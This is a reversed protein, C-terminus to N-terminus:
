QKKSNFWETINTHYNEMFWSCVRKMRNEKLFKGIQKDKTIQSFVADLKLLLVDLDEKNDIKKDKLIPLYNSEISDGIEGFNKCNEIVLNIGSERENENSIYIIKDNISDLKSKINDIYLSKTEKFITDSKRYLNENNENDDKNCGALRTIDKVNLGMFKSYNQLALKEEKVEIFENIAGRGVGMELYAKQNDSVSVPTAIALLEKIQKTKSWSDIELTNKLTKEFFCMYENSQEKKEEGDILLSNIEIKSAGFGIPKAMGISHKFENEGHFTLASLLGGLEIPLLNNFVITGTFNAGKELPFFSTTLKTPIPVHDINRISEIIPYRKRGSIVGNNFTLYDDTSIMETTANLFHQQIYFPYYTPKPSGLVTTFMKTETANNSFCHGFHVRGKLKNNEISGFLTEIFDYKNNKFNLYHNEIIEGVSNDYPLKYLMSLGFHKVEDDEYTIFIPVEGGKKLQKKWMKWDPKEKTPNGDDYAMKFSKIRIDDKSLYIEEEDSKWFIFEYKKGRFLNNRSSQGTFVLSGIEGSYKDVISCISKFKEDSYICNVFVNKFNVKENVLGRAFSYKHKAAKKTDNISAYQNSFNTYVKNLESHSIRGPKKERNLRIIYNEGDERLWGGKVDAFKEKPYITENRWERQSYNVDNFISLKSFSMIELVNAIEGKLSSGPIYFRDNLKPFRYQKFSSNISNTEEKGRIFIPSEATIELKIQGSLGEKFPVDHNVLHAWPPFFVKENLPVFNYPATINAM